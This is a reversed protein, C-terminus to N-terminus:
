CVGGVGCARPRARQGMRAGRDAPVAARDSVLPQGRTRADLALRARLDGPDVGTEGLAGALHVVSTDVSVVLDLQSILAATDTYDALADGFHLIDSREALVNADDAGIEKHLSVFTADVDLMRLFNRLGISREKDREHIVNGSWALGIRPRTKAGLRAGWEASKDAAVSLYPVQAPVTELRTGMALPLSLLPCHIDFAPLADGSAVIEAPGALSRM